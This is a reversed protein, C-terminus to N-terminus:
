STCGVVVNAYRSKKVLFASLLNRGTPQDPSLLDACKLSYWRAVEELITKLSDAKNEPFLHM